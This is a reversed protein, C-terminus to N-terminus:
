IIAGMEKPVKISVLTGTQQNSVVKYIFNSGYYYKLINRIFRIGIGSLDVNEEYNSNLTELIEQQIGDGNDWIKLEVYLDDDEASVIIKRKGEATINGHLWINEVLPQLIMKPIIIGKVEPAVSIRVDVVNDWRIQQIDIYAEVLKFEQAVTLLDYGKNLSLRYFITLNDIMTVLKKNQTDLAEWRMVGLTNYLFHPNIQSEMNKFEFRQKQSKVEAMEDITNSLKRLMSNYKMELLAVEDCKEPIDILSIDDKIQEMKEGLKHLRGFVKSLLISLSISTLIGYGFLTIAVVIKANRVQNGFQNSPILLWIDWSDDVPFKMTMTKNNEKIKRDKYLFMDYPLINQVNMNIKNEDSSAIIMDEHNTLYVAGGLERGIETASQFAEQSQICIKLYAEVGNYLQSVRKYKCLFEQGDITENLWESGDSLRSIDFDDQFIHRGDEGIDSGSQYIQLKRITSLRAMDENLAYRISNTAEWVDEYEHSRDSLSKIIIRNSSLRYIVNDYDERTKRINNVIKESYYEMKVEREIELPQFLFIALVWWTIFYVLLLSLIYIFIIRNKISVRLYNAIKMFIAKM